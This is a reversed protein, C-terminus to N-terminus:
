GFEPMGSGLRSVLGFVVAEDWYNLSTDMPRERAHLALVICLVAALAAVEFFLTPGGSGTQLGCIILFVALKLGFRVIVHRSAEPFHRSVPDM